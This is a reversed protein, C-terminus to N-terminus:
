RKLSLSIGPAADSSYLGCDSPLDKCEHKEIRHHINYWIMCLPMGSVYPQIAYSVIRESKKIQGFRYELAQTDNYWRHLEATDENEQEIEQRLCCM